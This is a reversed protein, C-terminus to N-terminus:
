PQYERGLMGLKAMGQKLRTPIWGATFSFDLKPGLNSLPKNINEKEEANIIRHICMAIAACTDKFAEKEIKKNNSKRAMNFWGATNLWWM